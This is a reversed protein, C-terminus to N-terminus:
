QSNTVVIQAICVVESPGCTAIWQSACIGLSSDQIAIIYNSWVIWGLDTVGKCSPVRWGYWGRHRCLVQRKYCRKIWICISLIHYIVIQLIQIQSM